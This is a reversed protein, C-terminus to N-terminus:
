RSYKKKIRIDDGIFEMMDYEGIIRSEVRHSYINELDTPRLNTSIITHKEKNIRSNIINFLESSTVVSSIETGLDDIILLDTDSLMQIYYEPNETAGKNFHYDALVKFMEPATLYLVSYGKDLVSKAICNCMYTKGRGTAGYFFFNSNNKPFTKVFEKCLMLTYDMKERPSIGKNELVDSSYLAIDFFNFNEKELVNINSIDYYKEILRQKFCHCEKGHVFGEDNCINCSYTDKLYNEPYGLNAIIEAENLLLLKQKEELERLLAESKEGEMIRKIIEFGVQQLEKHVKKLESNKSYIEESRQDYKKERYLKKNKFENVVDIYVSKKSM